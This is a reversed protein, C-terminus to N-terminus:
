LNDSITLDLVKKLEQINTVIQGGSNYIFYEVQLNIKAGINDGTLRIDSRYGIIKKRLAYAYGIEAAVGSDVDPGDLVAVIFKSAKIMEENNKALEKNLSQWLRIQKAIDNTLKIDNVKRSIEDSYAWPNLVEFSAQRILTTIQDMFAIGADNFGYPSALYVKDLGKEM